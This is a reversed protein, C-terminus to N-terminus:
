LQTVSICFDGHRAVSFDQDLVVVEDHTFDGFIM